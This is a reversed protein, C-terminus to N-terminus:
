VLEAQSGFLEYKHYEEYSPPASEGLDVEEFDSHLDAVNFSKRETYCTSLTVPPSPLSAAPPLQDPELENCVPMDDMNITFIACGTNSNSQHSDTSVQLSTATDPVPEVTMPHNNSIIEEYKPPIYKNRECMSELRQETHKSSHSKKRRLHDLVCFLTGLLVPIILGLAVWYWAVYGTFTSSTLQATTTHSHLSHGLTSVEKNMMIHANNLKYTNHTM